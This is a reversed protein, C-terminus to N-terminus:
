ETHPIPSPLGQKGWQGSSKYRNFRFDEELTSLGKIGVKGKGKKPPKPKKQYGYM